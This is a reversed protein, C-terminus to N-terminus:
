SASEVPEIQVYPLSQLLIEAQEAYASNPYDTSFTTLISRCEQLLQNKIEKSKQSNKWQQIKLLALEYMAGIGGDTNPFQRRLDTLLLIRQNPDEALLAKECLLNDRLGDEPPMSALLEDLRSAYDPLYRNLMIFVALRRRSAEDGGRNEKSLTSLLLRFRTQLDRLKRPTMVTRSPKRFSAFISDSEGVSQSVSLTELHERLMVLSVECLSQAKDLNGRGAEYRALRWRAELSEPSQPYSDFLEQWIVVNDPFPYDHYFHLREEAGLARVDPHYENLLAKFYLAAAKRKSTPWREMFLEYRGILERRKAPYKLEDPMKKQFWQPWRDYLILGQIEEKLKQRLLIPETPYFRGVLFSRLADDKVVEDLTKTISHDNFEVADEPSSGAVYLQYDLESFGIHKQFVGFATLLLTLSMAFVLGPRYRTFHGIGLVIAAMFLGSVWAYIWPAFSFGWRVPDVEPNGGWLAWYVLQPGMCLAISIFRSRFRLPRCAVAICSIMVFLGFLHLKAIFIISLIFPFSYRFSLLQSILVPAVAMIGMLIGLVVIHWPYEYISIPYVVFSGLHVMQSFTSHALETLDFSIPKDHLIRHWFWCSAVFVVATFFWFWLVNAHSYHLTPGATMFSKAPVTTPAAPAPTPKTTEAM